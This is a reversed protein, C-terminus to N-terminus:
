KELAKVLAEHVELSIQAEAKKMDDTASMMEQQAQSLGQEAAQKDIQDVPVAEEALVQVSSDANVTITGSSVFYKNQTGDNEYVIVVGPRLVSLVPVHQALIGFNGTTSPVDVQKVEANSYFTDTPTGFTFAMQSPAVAEEAYKRVPQVATAYRFNRVAGTLRSFSRLLSM